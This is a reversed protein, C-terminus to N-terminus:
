AGACELVIISVEHENNLYWSWSASIESLSRITDGERDVEGRTIAMRRTDTRRLMAAAGWSASKMLLRRLLLSLNPPM